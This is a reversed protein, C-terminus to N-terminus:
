SGDISWHWSESPLNYVGYDAAHASLWRFCDSGRACNSFDIALGAEHKSRGPKATPPSCQSAPMEYVAYHSSGCHQQRLAIQQAPDRYSSGALTVGASAADFIMDEIADAWMANTLGIGAVAVLQPSAEAEYRGAAELVEQVYARSHNYAFIGRQWDSETAMPSGAACLYAAATMVADYINHPDLFGDGNGDRAFARWTSPIFQMPGVAHDVNTSGDWVGDDSDPGLGPLPVGIIPPDVDGGVSVVADGHTGHGSEVEGIGALIRAPVACPPDFGPAAAAAREYADVVTGAIVGGSAPGSPPPEGGFIAVAVVIPLAVVACALAVLACGCILLPKRCSSM